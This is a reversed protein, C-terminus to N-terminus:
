TRVPRQLAMDVNTFAYITVEVHSLIDNVWESTGSRGGLHESGRNDNVRRRSGVDTFM